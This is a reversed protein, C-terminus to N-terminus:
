PAPEPTLNAVMIEAAQKLAQLLSAHGPLVIEQATTVNQIILQFSIVQQSGGGRYSMRVNAVQGVPRLAEILTNRVDAIGM